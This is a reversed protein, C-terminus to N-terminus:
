NNEEEDNLDKVEIVSSKEIDMYCDDTYSWVVMKNSQPNNYNSGLMKIRKVVTEGTTLHTFVVEKM